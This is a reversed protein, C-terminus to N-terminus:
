RYLVKYKRGKNGMRGISGYGKGVGEGRGKGGSRIKQGGLGAKFGAPTGAKAKKQSSPTWGTKRLAGYVYADKREQSWNKKAVQKKLKQELKKPM